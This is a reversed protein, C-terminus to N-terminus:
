DCAKRLHKDKSVRLLKVTRGNVEKGTYNFFYELLQTIHLRNETDRKGSRGLTDVDPKLGNKVPRINTRGFM